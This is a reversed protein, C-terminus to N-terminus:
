KQELLWQKANEINTFSSIVFNPKNIGLFFNAILQSLPNHVLMACAKHVKVMRDTNVFKRSFKDMGVLNKFHVLLLVGQGNEDLEEVGELHERITELNHKTKVPFKLHVIGDEDLTLLENSTRIERIM